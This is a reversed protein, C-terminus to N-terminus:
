IGNKVLIKRLNQLCDYHLKYIAAPSREMREAVEPLTYGEFYYRIVFERRAESDLQTVAGLLLSRLERRREDNATALDPLNALWEDWADIPVEEDAPVSVPYYHQHLRKKCANQVIVYVWADFEVDYPFPSRLVIAAADMVAAEVVEGREPGSLRSNQCYCRAWRDMNDMLQIWAAEEKNFQIQLVAPRCRRYYDAVREVYINVRQQITEPEGPAYRALYCQIRGRELNAYLIPEVTAVTAAGVGAPM